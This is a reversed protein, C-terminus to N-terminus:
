WIKETIAAFIFIAALPIPIIFLIRLNWREFKLHMFFMAVLLAKWIALVMLIVLKLNRSIPLEFALTLEAATLLALYLWIMLYPPHKHRATEM